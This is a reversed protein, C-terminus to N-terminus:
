SSSAIVPASGDAEAQGAAPIRRRHSPERTRHWPTGGQGLVVPKAEGSRNGLDVKHNGLWGAHASWTHRRRGRPPGCNLGALLDDHPRGAPEKTTVPGSHVGVPGQKLKGALGGGPM